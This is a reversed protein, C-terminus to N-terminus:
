ERARRNTFTRCFPPVYELGLARFIDTECTLAAGAGVPRRTALKDDELSIPFLHSDSLHWGTARSTPGAAEQATKKADPAQKAWFRLARNFSGDGTFYAVATPLAARSYVKMDLRRWRRPRPGDGNNRLAPHDAPLRIAGMWSAPAGPTPHQPEAAAAAGSGSGTDKGSGLQQTLHYLPAGEEGDGEDALTTRVVRRKVRGDSPAYWNETNAAQIEFGRETLGALVDRLLKHCELTAAETAAMFADPSTPHQSHLGAVAGDAPPPSILMDVDGYTAQRAAALGVAAAPIDAAAHARLWSGCARVHAPSSSTATGAGAPYGREDCGLIGFAVARAAEVVADVEVAPIRHAFDGAHELGLRQTATLNGVRGGGPLAVEARLDELTRIGLGVWRRATAVGVGWVAGTLAKVAVAVPDAKAMELRTLTGTSLVEWIKDHTAPGVGKVAKGGPSTMHIADVDARSNLAHPWAELADIGVRLARGKFFDINVGNPGTGGGTKSYIAEGAERLKAVLCFPRFSCAAHSCFGNLPPPAAATAAGSPARAAPTAADQDEDDSSSSGM